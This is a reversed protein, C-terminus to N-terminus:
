GRTNKDSIEGRWEWSLLTLGHRSNRWRSRASGSRNALNGNMAAFDKLSILLAAAAPIPLLLHKEPSAAAAAAAAAPTASPFTPPPAPFSTFRNVAMLWASWMARSVSGRHAARDTQESILISPTQPETRWNWDRNLEQEVKEKMSSLVEGM